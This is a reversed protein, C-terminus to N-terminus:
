YRKQEERIDEALKELAQRTEAKLGPMAQLARHKRQALRFAPDVPLCYISFKGAAARLAKLTDAHQRIRGDVANVVLRRYAPKETEMRRRLLNLNENFIQLGDLAFSDGLIPSIIEESALASARELPGWGSSLDLVAYAFGLAEAERLIRRMCFPDDKALGEAFVKLDEGLGATPLLSLGPWETSQIAQGLPCKELLVDALEAQITETGLWASANGQPDADVLLVPGGQTALEAALGVAVSTKGVGGKQLSVALGKM